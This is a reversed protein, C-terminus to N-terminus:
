ASPTSRLWIIWLHEADARTVRGDALEGFCALHDDRADADELLAQRMAYAQRRQSDALDDFQSMRRHFELFHEDSNRHVGNVCSRGFWGLPSRGLVWPKRRQVKPGIRGESSFPMSFDENSLYLQSEGPEGRQGALGRLWDDYRVSAGLSAGLVM